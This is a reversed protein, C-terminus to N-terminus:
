GKTLAWMARCAALAVRNFNMLAVLKMEGIGSAQITTWASQINKWGEDLEGGSPSSRYTDLYRM